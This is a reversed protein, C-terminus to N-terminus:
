RDRSANSAGATPLASSSDRDILLAFGNEKALKGMRLCQDETLKGGERASFRIGGSGASASCLTVGTERAIEGCMAVVWGAVMPQGPETSFCGTGGMAAVGSTGAEVRALLADIKAELPSEPAQTEARKTLGFYSWLKNEGACREASNKVHDALAAIQEKMVWTALSPDYEHYNIITTDFPVRPTLTDKVMCTPKDVATRIGLEFFVNANLISMDCLVMDATELHRIIEAQIVDSGTAAPPVPTFGAKEVAPIFLHELVHRFHAQDGGYQGVLDPPTTIPMIIFCTPKPKADTTPETKPKTV